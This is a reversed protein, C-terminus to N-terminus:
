ELEKKIQNLRNQLELNGMGLKVPYGNKFRNFAKRQKCPRIDDWLACSNGSLSDPWYSTCFFNNCKM